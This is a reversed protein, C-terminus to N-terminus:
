ENSYILASHLKHIVLPNNLSSKIHNETDVVGTLFVNTRYEGEKREQLARSLLQSPSLIYANKYNERVKALDNWKLYYYLSGAGSLITAGGLGLLLIDM